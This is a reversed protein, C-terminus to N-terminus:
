LLCLSWCLGPPCSVWQPGASIVEPLFWMYHKTNNKLSLGPNGWSDFQINKLFLHTLLYACLSSRFRWLCYQRQVLYRMIPVSPKTCSLLFICLGPPQAPQLAEQDSFPKSHTSPRLQQVHCWLAVSSESHRISLPKYWPPGLLLTATPCILVTLLLCVQPVVSAGDDQGPRSTEVETRSDALSRETISFTRRFYSLLVM